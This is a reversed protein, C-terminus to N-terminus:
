EVNQQQPHDHSHDVRGEDLSRCFLSFLGWFGPCSRPGFKLLLSVVQSHLFVVGPGAGSGRGLGEFAGIRVGRRSPPKMRVGLIAITEILAIPFSGVMLSASFSKLEEIFQGDAIQGKIRLTRLGPLLPYFLPQVDGGGRGNDGSKGRKVGKGKGERGKERYKTTFNNKLAMIRRKGM